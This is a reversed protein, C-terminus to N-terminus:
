AVGPPLVRLIGGHPKHVDAIRSTFDGNKLRTGENVEQGVIRTALFPKLHDPIADTFKIEIPTERWPEGPARPPPPPATVSGVILTHDLDVDAALKPAHGDHADLAPMFLRDANMPRYWWLLPSAELSGDWACLAMKWKPYLYDYAEFIEANITPRRNAPMRDLAAIIDKASDALAITYGGKDFVQVSDSYDDDAGFGKMGRSRRANHGHVYRAYDKLISKAGTTDLMNDPGMPADSPIPLLMANPGPSLNEARNQYGLVHVLNGQHLTEAAYLITSTMKAPHLSCCM